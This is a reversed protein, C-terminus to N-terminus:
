KKKGVFRKFLKVYADRDMLASDNNAKLTLFLGLPFLIFSSLWMGMFPSVIYNKAMQEGSNSLIYYLIFLLVSLLIPLGLGGKKVIAGLPAGIFFLVICAFSLTFKRHWEVGLRQLHEKEFGMVLNNSNLYSEANRVRNMAGQIVQKQEIRALKEFYNTPRIETLKSHITDNIKNVGLNNKLYEISENKRGEIKQNVSDNVKLLQGITLMHENQYEDDKSRAFSLESIDFAISAKEFSYRQYPFRANEVSAESMEQYITGNELNLMLKNGDKSKSMIGKEARITRKHDRPDLAFNPPPFSHDYILIDELIKTEDNKNKIRISFNPLDNYFMGEKINLTPKANSIDSILVRMKFHAVPWLNNSFFFAGISILIMLFILPKMVKILSFGAAKMATLESNEGLNGFTMISSFLIALPLAMPVLSASAYFLLEAVISFELGKGMLDDMYKWLFQMMLFFMAICFTLIFPGIYSRVILFNLRKIQM